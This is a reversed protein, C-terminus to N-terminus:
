SHTWPLSDEELRAFELYDPKDAADRSRYARVIEGDCVLFAGPLRFGDGELAGVRHGGSLFAKLGRWWIYPGFLQGFDGRELEFARYLECGPDSIHVADGLGAATLRREAEDQDSMHVLVLSAGHEEIQPRMEKLEAVAERAFSCGLHRLFVFLRPKEVTMELASCGTSTRASELAGRVGRTFLSTGAPDTNARFADWLIWSFPAWWVLDNTLLILGFSWPLAGGAIAWLFGVPGLIKGLLGVFVIPWHRRSNGAAIAYGIGFVGVIMGICQWLAPYAPAPMGLWEFYKTPFLVAFGGFALNYWAATRLIISSRRLLARDRSMIGM